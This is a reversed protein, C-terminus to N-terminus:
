AHTINPSTVCLCSNEKKGGSCVSDTVLNKETPCTHLLEGGGEEQSGLLWCCGGGCWWWRWPPCSTEQRWKHTFNTLMFAWWVHHYSSHCAPTFLLSLCIGVPHPFPFPTPLPLLDRSSCSNPSTGSDGGGGGSGLMDHTHAFCTHCSFPPHKALKGPGVWWGQSSGCWTTQGHQECM